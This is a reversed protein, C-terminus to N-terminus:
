ELRFLPRAVPLFPWPISALVFILAAMTWAFVRRHRQLPDAARKSRARGVHVFAIAAIMMTVHELGFFRLTRNHVNAGVDALFAQAFPSAGLYLWLGVLFQLDVVSVLAVHLREDVASWPGFGTRGRWSRIVVIVLLVLVAWRIWSHALLAIPYSAGV